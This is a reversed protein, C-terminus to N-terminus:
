GQKEADKDLLMTNLFRHGSAVVGPVQEAFVGLAFAKAFVSEGHFGARAGVGPFKASVFIKPGEGAQEM